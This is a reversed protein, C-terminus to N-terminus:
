FMDCRIQCKPVLNRLRKKKKQCESETADYVQVWDKWLEKLEEILPQWYIDFDDGTIRDRPIHLSLMFSSEKM